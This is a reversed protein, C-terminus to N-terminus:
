RGKYIYIVYTGLRIMYKSFFLSGDPRSDVQLMEGPMSFESSSCSEFDRNWIKTAAQRAHTDGRERRCSTEQHHKTKKSNVWMRKGDKENGNPERWPDGALNDWTRGSNSDRTSYSVKKEAAAPHIPSQPAAFRSRNLPEDDVDGNSVAPTSPAM